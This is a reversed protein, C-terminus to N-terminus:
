VEAQRNSADEVDFRALDREEPQAELGLGIVEALAWVHLEGLREDSLPNTEPDVIGDDVRLPQDAGVAAVDLAVQRVELLHEDEVASSASRSARTATTPVDSASVM